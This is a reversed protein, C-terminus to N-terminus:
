ELITKGDVIVLQLHELQAPEVLTIPNCIQMGGPEGEEDPTPWFARDVRVGETEWDTMILRQNDILYGQAFNLEPMSFEEYTGDAYYAQIKM